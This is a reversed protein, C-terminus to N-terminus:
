VIAFYDARLRLTPLGLALAFAVALVIALAIGIWMSWGWTAVAVGVGFAGVLMFGVQGFNYLGTYGFHVNLGLALLALVAAEPGLAARAANGFIDGIEM